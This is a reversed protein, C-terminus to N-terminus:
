ACSTESSCAASSTAGPSCSQTSPSSAPSAREPAFDVETFSNM